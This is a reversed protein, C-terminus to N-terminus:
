KDITVNYVKDFLKIEKSVYYSELASIYSNFSESCFPSQYEKHIQFDIYKNFGRLTFCKQSYVLGLYEVDGICAQSVFMAAERWKSFPKDIILWSGNHSSVFKSYSLGLLNIYELASELHSRDDCDIVPYHFGKFISRITIHSYNHNVFYDGFFPKTMYHSSSLVKHYFKLLTIRKRSDKLGYGSNYNFCRFFKLDSCSFYNLFSRFISPRSCLQESCYAAVIAQLRENEVELRENEIELTQHYDVM